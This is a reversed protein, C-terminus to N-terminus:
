AVGPQIFWCAHGNIRGITVDVNRVTVAVAPDGDEVALAFEQPVPAPLPRQGLVFRSHAAHEEAIHMAHHEAVIPKDVYAVPQAVSHLNEGFHALEYPVDEDVRGGSFYYAPARGPPQGKRRILSLLKHIYSVAPIFCNPNEVPRGAFGQRAAALRAVLCTFEGEEM